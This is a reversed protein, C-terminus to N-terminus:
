YRGLYRRGVKPLGLGTGVRSSPCLPHSQSPQRSLATQNASQTLIMTVVVAMEGTEEGSGRSLGGLLVISYGRRPRSIYADYSM